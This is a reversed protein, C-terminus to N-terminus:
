ASLHRISGYFVLVTTTFPRFGDLSYISSHRLCCFWSVYNHDVYTESVSCTSVLHLAPNPRSNSADAKSRQLLRPCVSLLPLFVVLRRWRNKCLVVPIILCWIAARCLPRPSNTGATRWYRLLSVWCSLTLCALFFLSSTLTLSLLLSPWTGALGTLCKKELLQATDLLTAPQKWPREDWPPSPHHSSSKRVNLTQWLGNELGPLKLFGSVKSFFTCRTHCFSTFSTSYICVTRCALTLVLIM